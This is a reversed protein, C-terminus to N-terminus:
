NLEKQLKEHHLVYAFLFWKILEESGTKHRKMKKTNHM